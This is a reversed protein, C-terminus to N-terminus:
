FAGSYFFMPGRYTWDLNGHFRDRDVDVDIAFQNYGLGLGLWKKPQWFVAVRYDTLRGDYDGYSLAFFQASADLWFDRPLRWMGRVGIVPLPAGMSATDEIDRELTGGSAEAKASLKADLETYHLGVTGAVEYNERRMFAYEYALEYVDFSLDSDTRASVPFELDGWEITHDLTRSQSRSSNFWLARVKHREAFRWYGDIRFRTADAGGFTEEFDVVTGREATGDLRV